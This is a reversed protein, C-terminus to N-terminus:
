ERKELEKETCHIRNRMNYAEKGTPSLEEKKIICTRDAKETCNKRKQVELAHYDLINFLLPSLSAPLLRKLTFDLSLSISGRERDDNKTGREREGSVRGEM